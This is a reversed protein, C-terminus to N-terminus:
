LAFYRCHTFFFLCFHFLMQFKDLKAACLCSLEIREFFCIHHNNRASLCRWDFAEWFHGCTLLPGLLFLFRSFVFACAYFLQNRCCPSLGQETVTLQLCLQLYGWLRVSATVLSCCALQESQLYYGLNNCHCFNILTLLIYIVINVYLLLLNIVICCNSHQLLQCLHIRRTGGFILTFACVSILSRYSASLLMLLACFLVVSTQHDM